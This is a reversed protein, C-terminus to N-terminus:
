PKPTCDYVEQPVAFPEACPWELAKKTAAINDDGLPEGHAAAM